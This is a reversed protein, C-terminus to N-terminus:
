VVSKANCFGAHCVACFRNQPEEDCNNRCEADGDCPFGLGRQASKIGFLPLGTLAAFPIQFAAETPACEKTCATEDWDPTKWHLTCQAKACSCEVAEADGADARFTRQHLCTRATAHHDYFDAQWLHRHPCCRPPM